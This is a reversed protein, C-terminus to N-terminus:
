RCRMADTSLMCVMIRLKYFKAWSFLPDFELTQGSKQDRIKIPSVVDKIEQDVRWAETEVGDWIGIAQTFLRRIRCRNQCVMRYLNLYEDIVKDM